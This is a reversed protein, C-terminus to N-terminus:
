RLAQGGRRASLVRDHLHDSDSDGGDDGGNANWRVPRAPNELTMTVLSVVIVALSAVEFRQSNVDPLRM